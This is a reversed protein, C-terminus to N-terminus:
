KEGQQIMMQAAAHDIEEVSLWSRVTAELRKRKGRPGRKAWGVLTISHNPVCLWDRARHESLIKKQRKSIDGAACCQVMICMNLRPDTVMIDGFGFFDQRVKVHPNWKELVAAVCGLKRFYDLTRQTPSM